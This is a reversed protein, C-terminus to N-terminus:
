VSYTSPFVYLYISPLSESWPLDFTTTLSELRYVLPERIGWVLVCRSAIRGKKMRLHGKGAGISRRVRM